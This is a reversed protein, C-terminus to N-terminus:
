APINQSMGCITQAGLFAFNYSAVTNARRLAVTPTQHHPRVLHRPTVIRRHPVDYAQEVTATWRLPPPSPTADNSRTSPNSTALSLVDSIPNSAPKPTVMRHNDSFAREPEIVHWHCSGDLLLLKRSSM